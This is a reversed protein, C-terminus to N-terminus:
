IVYIGPGLDSAKGLEQPLFEEVHRNGAKDVWRCSVEDPNSNIEIVVMVLGTNSLHYVSDGVHFDNISYKGM